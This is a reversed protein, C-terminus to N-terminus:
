KKLKNIEEISLETAKSIDNIDMNMELMRKATAIQNEKTGNEYAIRRRTNELAKEEEEPTIGYVFDLGQNYGEIKRQYRKILEDRESLEMLEKGELDLMILYKYKDILLEDKHSWVDKLRDMNFVIVKFNDVYLNKDEDKMKYEAKITKNKGM